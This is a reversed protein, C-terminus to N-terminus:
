EAPRSASAPSPVTKTTEYWTASNIEYLRLAYDVRWTPGAPPALLKDVLPFWANNLSRVPERGRVVVEGGTETARAECPIRYEEAVVWELRRAALRRESESGRVSVTLRAEDDYILSCSSALSLSALALGLSSRRRM